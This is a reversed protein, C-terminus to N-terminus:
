SAGGQGLRARVAGPSLGDVRLWKDRGREGRVVRVASSPLGLVGALLAAVAANARGEVPPATVRVGLTDARWGVIEDRTARPQVRVRLLTPETKGRRTVLSTRESV